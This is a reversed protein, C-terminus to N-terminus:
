NWGPNQVLNINQRLSNIRIPWLYDKFTYDRQWVNQLVYYSEVDEGLVNFGRFPKNMYEEAEMWRRLDYFRSGELALEILREQHLIQRMGNKTTFKNSQTSYNTWSEEVGKLGCRARVTDVYYLVEATPGQSENLAEAYLLYMDALRVIPFSYRKRTFSTATLSNDISSLKKAFYGTASYDVSVKGAYEQAKAELHFATSELQGHGYWISGDFGLTGYFRPERDFNLVATERGEKVYYRDSYDAVKTQYRNNYPWTVDEDIPVGHNSYFEEAVRMTPAHRGYAQQYSNAASLKAQAQGQLTNPNDTSGWIIEPNWRECVAQRINLKWITTDNLNDITYDQHNYLYNGAEHAMDIAEKCAAAAAVWKSEDKEAPFLALGRNDVFTAYNPNGNFLDSAGWVLTKAKVALAIPKTIRGLETQTDLINLELDEVCDDITSVIYDVVEEITNRYVRADEPEVDIPLNVDVIPIPGYLRMLYFHYYAKLFKVEAVWRKKEYEDLDFPRDINELFINCDRIGKYLATGGVLGDWHNIYPNTTNQNGRAINVANEGIRIVSADYWVEDGSMLGPTTAPNCINPLYKYCTFLYKEAGARDDFAMDVTPMNDPVIDLYSDCSFM